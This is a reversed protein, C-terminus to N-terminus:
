QMMPHIHLFTNKDGIWRFSTQLGQMTYSMFVRQNGRLTCDSVKFVIEQCQLEQNRQSRIASGSQCIKGEEGTGIPLYTWKQLDYIPLM